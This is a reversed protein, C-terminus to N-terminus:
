VNRRKKFYTIIKPFYYGLLLKCKDIFSINRSIIYINKYICINNRFKKQYSLNLKFNTLCFLNIRLYRKICYIEIDTNKFKKILNECIIIEDFWKENFKSHITSGENIYYYYDINNIIKCTGHVNDLYRINFDLDEAIRYKSNFLTRKVIKTIYLKGWCVGNMIKEKLIEKIFEDKSLQYDTKIVDNKIYKNDIINTANECVIINNDMKYYLNYIYNDAVYDDSDVFTIYKGSSEKIGSNRAESVGANNKHIVKIREDIKQYEDCIKGSDDTSGDDVIIVEIKKYSQMILSNICRKLYKQSNYVPVVVSILDSM